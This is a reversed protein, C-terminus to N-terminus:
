MMKRNKFRSFRRTVNNNHARITGMPGRHTGWTPLLTNTRHASRWRRRRWRPTRQVRPVFWRHRSPLACRSDLGPELQPWRSARWGPLLAAPRWATAGSGVSATRWCGGSWCPTNLTTGWLSFYPYALRASVISEMECSNINLSRHMQLESTDLCALQKLFSIEHYRSLTPWYWCWVHLLPISGARIFRALNLLLVRMILSMNLGSSSPFVTHWTELRLLDSPQCWKSMM